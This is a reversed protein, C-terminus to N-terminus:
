ELSRVFDAVRKVFAPEVWRTPSRQFSLKGGFGGFVEQMKPALVKIPRGAKDRSVASIRVAKKLLRSGSAGKVLVLSDRQKAFVTPHRVHFNASFLRQLDADSFETAKGAASVEFYGALYLAPEADFGWGELGCYFVLLDGRELRRLGAKPPTPDGYTFTDFEPDVHMSQASMRGQRTPPFYEVWYRGNRGRTNGYTRPDIGKRDPIPVFEFSGDRFVPGQMGGSGSDIGVRLMAVKM